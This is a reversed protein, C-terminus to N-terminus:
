FSQNTTRLVESKEKKFISVNARRLDNSLESKCAEFVICLYPLVRINKVIWLQLGDGGLSLSNLTIFCKSVINQDFELKLRVKEYDKM